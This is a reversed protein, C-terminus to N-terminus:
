VASQALKAAHTVVRRASGVGSLSDTKSSHPSELVASVYLSPAEMKPYSKATMEYTSAAGLKLSVM